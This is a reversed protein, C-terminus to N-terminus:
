SQVGILQLTTARVTGTGATRIADISLVATSQFTWGTLWYYSGAWVAFDTVDPSTAIVESDISLRINGVTDLLDSVTYISWAFGPHQRQIYCSAISTWGTETTGPWTTVNMDTPRDLSVWPVALGRGSNTDDAMVVDGARDLVQWSQRYPPSTPTLDGLLAAPTGDERYLAFGPQTSGDDRNYAPPLAGIRAVVHGDEDIAVITGGLKVTLDGGANLTIGAADFTALLNGDTDLIKIAGGKVSLGGRGILANELTRATRLATVEHQLEAIKRSVDDVFNAPPAINGGIGPQM